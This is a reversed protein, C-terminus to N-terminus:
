SKIVPKHLPFQAFIDRSCCPDVKMFQFFLGSFLHGRPRKRANSVTAHDRKFFPLHNQSCVGLMQQDSSFPSLKKLPGTTDAIKWHHLIMWIKQHMPLFVRSFRVRFQHHSLRVLVCFAPNMQWKELLKVVFINVEWEPSHGYFLWSFQKILLFEKILLALFFLQCNHDLFFPGRLLHCRSDETTM